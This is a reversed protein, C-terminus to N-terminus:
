LMYLPLSSSSFFFVPLLADPCIHPLSYALLWVLSQMSSQVWEVCRLSVPVLARRHVKVIFLLFDWWSTLYWFSLKCGGKSERDLFNCICQKKFTSQKKKNVGGHWTVLCNCRQTKLVHQSKLFFFFPHESLCEVVLHSDVFQHNSKHVRLPWVM